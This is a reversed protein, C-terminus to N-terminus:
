FPERLGVFRGLVRDHVLKEGIAQAHFSPVEPREFPGDESRFSYRGGHAVSDCHDAGM